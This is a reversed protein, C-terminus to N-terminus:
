SSDILGLGIGGLGNEDGDDDDEEEEVGGIEDDDGGGVEDDDDRKRDGGVEDDLAHTLGGSCGDDGSEGNSLGSFPVKM